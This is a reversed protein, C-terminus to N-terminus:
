VLSVLGDVGRSKPSNAQAGGYEPDKDTYKTLTASCNLNEGPGHETLSCINLM